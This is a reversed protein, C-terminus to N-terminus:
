KQGSASTKINKLFVVKLTYETLGFPPFINMRLDACLHNIRSTRSLTISCHILCESHLMTNVNKFSQKLNKKSYNFTFWHNSFEAFCEAFSMYFICLENKLIQAEIELLSLCGLLKFRSEGVFVLYSYCAWLLFETMLVSFSLLCITTKCSSIYSTYFQCPVWTKLSCCLGVFWCCLVDFNWNIQQQM